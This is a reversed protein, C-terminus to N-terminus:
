FPSVKDNGLHNSLEYSRNGLIKNYQQNQTNYTGLRASGYIPLEKVEGEQYVALINGSTERVYHEKEIKGAKELTKLVRNGLADYYYKAEVGENNRVKEVKQQVNWSIEKEGDKLL